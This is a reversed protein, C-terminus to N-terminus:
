IGMEAQAVPLTPVNGALICFNRLFTIWRPRAFGMVMKNAYTIAKNPEQWSSPLRIKEAFIRFYM